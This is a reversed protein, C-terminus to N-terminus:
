SLVGEVMKVISSWGALFRESQAFAAAISVIGVAALVSYAVREFDSIRNIHLWARNLEGVPMTHEAGDSAACAARRMAIRPVPSLGKKTLTPLTIKLLSSLASTSERQHDKRPVRSGSRTGMANEITMTNETTMSKTMVGM